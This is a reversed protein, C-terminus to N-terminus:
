KGDIGYGTRAQHILEDFFNIEDYYGKQENL